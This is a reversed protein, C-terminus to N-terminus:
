KKYSFIEQTASLRERKGFKGYDVNRHWEALEEEYIKQDIEYQAAIAQEEKNLEQKYYKKYLVPMVKPDNMPSEPAGVFSEAHNGMLEVYKVGSEKIYSLIAL